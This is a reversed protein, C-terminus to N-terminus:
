REYEEWLGGAGPRANELLTFVQDARAADVEPQWTLRYIWQKWAETSPGWEDALALATKTSSGYILNLRVLWGQVRTRPVFSGVRTDPM